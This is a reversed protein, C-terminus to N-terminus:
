TFYGLFPLDTSVSFLNRTANLPTPTPILLSQLHAIPDKQSKLIPNHHYNWLETFKSFIM